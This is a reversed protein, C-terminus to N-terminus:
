IARAVSRNPATAAASTTDSHQPARRHPAAASRFAITHAPEADDNYDLMELRVGRILLSGGASVFQHYNARLPSLAAVDLRTLRHAEVVVRRHGDALQRDLLEILVRVNRASLSGEVHIRVLGPEPPRKLTLALMEGGAHPTQSIVTSLASGPVPRHPASSASM